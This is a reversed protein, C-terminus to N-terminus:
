GTIAVSGPHELAAALADRLEAAESRTLAVADYAAAGLEAAEWREVLVIGGQATVRFRRRENVGQQDV